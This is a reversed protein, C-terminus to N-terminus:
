NHATMGTTATPTWRLDAVFRAFAADFESPETEVASQSDLWETESREVAPSQRRAAIRAARSAILRNSEAILFQRTESTMYYRDM